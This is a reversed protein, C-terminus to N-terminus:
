REKFKVVRFSGTPKDIYASVAATIVAAIEGDPKKCDDAPPQEPAPTDSNATEAYRAKATNRAEVMVFIKGTLAIILWIVTLAAFVVGMGLLLLQLGIGMREGFTMIEIVQATTELFM